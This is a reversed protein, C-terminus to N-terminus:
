PQNVEEFCHNYGEDVWIWGILGDSTLVKKLNGDELLFVIHTDPPFWTVNQKFRKSYYAAGDSQAAIVPVRADAPTEKSSFLIWYWKKVLYLSGVNM